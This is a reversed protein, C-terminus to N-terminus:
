AGVALAESAHQIKALIEARDAKWRYPKQQEERIATYVTIARTLQPVSRFSGARVCEHTIDAFFREVLSMWSSSTPIFHMHFPPGRWGSRLRTGSTRPM